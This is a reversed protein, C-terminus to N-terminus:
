DADVPCLHENSQVALEILEQTLRERALEDHILQSERQWATAKGGAHGAKRLAPTNGHLIGVQVHTPPKRRAHTM